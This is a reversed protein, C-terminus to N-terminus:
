MTRLNVTFDPHDSSCFQGTPVFVIHFTMVTVGRCMSFFLFWLLYYYHKIQVFPFYFAQIYNCLARYCPLNSYARCTLRATMTCYLKLILWWVVVNGSRSQKWGTNTGLVWTQPTLLAIATGWPVPFRRSSELNPARLGQSSAQVFHFFFCALWMQESWFLECNPVCAQKVSSLNHLVFSNWLRECGEQPWLFASLLHLLDLSVYKGVVSADFNNIFVDLDGDSLLPTSSPGAQKMM